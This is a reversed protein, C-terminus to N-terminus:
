VPEYDKEFVDPDIARRHSGDLQRVIWYGKGPKFPVTLGAMQMPEHEDDEVQYALVNATSKKRYVKLGDIQDGTEDYGNPGTFHADRVRWSERKATNATVYWDPGTVTATGELTEITETQGVPLQRALVTATKRYERDEPM